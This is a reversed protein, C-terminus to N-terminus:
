VPRGPASKTMAGVASLLEDRQFPKCLIREEAFRPPLANRGYGTLFTFPIGRASLLDAIPYAETGRLNVDLLAVDAATTEAAAMAQDFRGIPGVVVCGAAVLTMELGMAVMLEDEVVFVRRGTLAPNEPTM